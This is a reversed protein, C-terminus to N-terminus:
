SRPPKDHPLFIFDGQHVANLTPVLNQGLFAGRCPLTSRGSPRSSSGSGRTMKVSKQLRPWNKIAGFGKRYGKPRYYHRELRKELQFKYIFPSFVSSDCRGPSRHSSTRQYQFRQVLKDIMNFTLPTSFSLMVVCGFCATSDSM